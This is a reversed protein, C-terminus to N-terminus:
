DAWLNLDIMSVADDWNTGTKLAPPTLLMGEAMGDILGPMNFLAEEDLFLTRSDELVTAQGELGRGSCEPVKEECGATTLEEVNDSPAAEELKWFIEPVQGVALLIDRPSPSKARPALWASDPFNLAASIGRLALAAVDHARAALEASSYTGLWIRTKKFPERMECVWKGEKRQRVGRYIPHRTENFKKRGAKRKQLRQRQTPPADEKCPITASTSDGNGLSSSPSQHPALEYHLVQTQGQLYKVTVVSSDWFFVSIDMQKM